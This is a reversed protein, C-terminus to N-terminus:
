RKIEFFGKKIRNSKTKDLILLYFYTGSKLINDGSKSLQEGSTGGWNNLYPSAEFLINGDENFISLRNNPYKEIGDIIYLDNNGDNNPTFGEPIFVGEEDKNNFFTYIDGEPVESSYHKGTNLNHSITQASTWINNEHVHLSMQDVRINDTHHTYLQIAPKKIKISEQFKFFIKSGEKGNMLHPKHGRRIELNYINTEPIFSFGMNGPNIEAGQRLDTQKVIEGLGSAFIHYDESENLIDGRLYLNSDNLDLKGYRMFINKHLQIDSGLMCNANIILQGLVIASQGELFVDFGISNIFLNSNEDSQFSGNNTLSVGNMSVSIGDQM